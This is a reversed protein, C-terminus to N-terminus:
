RLAVTIPFTRSNTASVTIQGAATRYRGTGGVIPLSFTGPGQQTSSVDGIATVQGHSLRLVFECLQDATAKGVHATTCNGVLRGARQGGRTLAGTFLDQDGASFGTKGLDISSDTGQHAHLTFAGARTATTGHATGASASGSVALATITAAGAALVTAVVATSRVTNM